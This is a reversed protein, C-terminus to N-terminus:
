LRVAPLAIRVVNAEAIFNELREWFGEKTWRSPM